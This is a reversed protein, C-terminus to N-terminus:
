RARQLSARELPLLIELHVGRASSDITLTGGLADVRSWLSVPGGGGASLAAHERRGRFALGRGDDVIELRVSGDRAGARVEVSKAGGHRAANVVAEHVMLRVDQALERPLRGLSEDAELTVRLGWQREVRRRLEELRGRLTTEPAPAGTPKLDRLLTRLDRQEASLLRQVEHLAALPQRRGRDHVDQLNEVLVAGVGAEAAQAIRRLGVEARQPPDLHPGPHDHERQRGM